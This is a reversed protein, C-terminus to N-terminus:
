PKGEGDRPPDLPMSGRSIAICLYANKVIKPYLKLFILSRIQLAIQVQNVINVFYKFDSPLDPLDLLLHEVHNIFFIM